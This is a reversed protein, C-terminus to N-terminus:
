PNRDKTPDFLARFSYPTDAGFATGGLMSTPGLAGTAELALLGADAQGSGLTVSAVIVTWLFVLHRMACRRWSPHAVRYGATSGRTDSYELQGLSVRTLGRATPQKPSLRRGKKMRRARSHGVGGHRGAAQSGGGFAHLGPGACGPSAGHLISHGPHRDRL